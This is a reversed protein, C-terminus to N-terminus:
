HPLNTVHGFFGLFFRLGFMSDSACFFVLLFFFSTFIAATHPFYNWAIVGWLWEIGKKWNISQNNLDLSETPISWERHSYQHPRPQLSLILYTPQSVCQQRWIMTVIFMETLFSFAAATRIQFDSAKCISHTHLLLRTLWALVQGM